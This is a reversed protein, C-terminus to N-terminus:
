RTIQLLDNFLNVNKAIQKIVQGKFYKYVPHGLEELELNCSLLVELGILEPSSCINKQSM